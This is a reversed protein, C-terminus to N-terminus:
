QATCSISRRYEKNASLLTRSILPYLLIIVAAPLSFGRGCITMMMSSSASRIITAGLSTSSEIQRRACIARAAPMCKTIAVWRGETSTMVPKILAFTGERIAKATDDWMSLRVM